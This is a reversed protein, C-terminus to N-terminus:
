EFIHPPMVNAGRFVCGLSMVTQPLKTKMIRPVDCRYYTLRRNSQITHLQDQCNNEDLFSWNIEPEALHKPKNLRDEKAKATLIEGKRRKYSHYRFGWELVAENRCSWYEDRQGFSLIGENLDEMVKGQFQQIFEPTYFYDSRSNHGKRSAMAAYGGSCSNVNWKAAKVTNVSCQSATMIHPNQNGARIVM